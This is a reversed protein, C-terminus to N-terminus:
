SDSPCINNFTILKVHQLNQGIPLTYFVIPNILKSVTHSPIPTSLASYQFMSCIYTHSSRPDAMERVQEGPPRRSGHQGTVKRHM